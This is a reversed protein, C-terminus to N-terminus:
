PGVSELFSLYAQAVSDVAVASSGAGGPILSWKSHPICDRAKESAFRSAAHSKEGAMLLVPLSLHQFGACPMSIPGDAFMAGVTRGNDRMTQKYSEPARDWAGPGRIVDLHARLAEEDDAKAFAAGILATREKEKEGELTSQAPQFDRAALFGALMAASRLVAPADRAVMATVTGGYTEGFLHVPGVGLQRIFGAVDAANGAFSYDGGRGNWHEPYHHRLSLAVVHYKSSLADALPLMSRYDGGVGHLLVVTSVGAGTPGREAYTMDYGNVQMTLAGPPLPWAREGALCTSMSLVLGVLVFSASLVKQRLGETNQKDLM